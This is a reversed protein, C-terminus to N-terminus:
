DTRIKSVELSQVCQTVWIKGEKRKRSGTNESRGYGSNRGAIRILYDTSFNPLSCVSLYM